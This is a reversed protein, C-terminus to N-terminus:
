AVCTEIREQYFGDTTSRTSSIATNDCDEQNPEENLEKKPDEDKPSRDRDKITNSIETMISHESESELESDATRNESIKIKFRGAESRAPEFHHM